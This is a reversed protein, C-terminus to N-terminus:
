AKREGAKGGSNRGLAPAQAEGGRAPIEYASMAQVTENQGRQVRIIEAVISVAIEQPTQAGIALGIPASVKRFLAEPVGAAKLRLFFKAVKTKSGIMGLYGFDSPILAELLQQDLPHSHTFILLFDLPGVAPLNRLPDGSVLTAGQGECGDLWDQREDYVFVSCDLPSLATCVAQGVHGAGFLHARIPTELVEVFVEMEGGCCMGLDRTLHATYRRHQGTKIAAQAEQIVRLEFVGGGVTGRISGDLYVIMKAADSRPASGAVGIVTCIAAPRGSRMAELASRLIKV